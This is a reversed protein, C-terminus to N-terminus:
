RIPTPAASLVQSNNLMDSIGGRGAMPETINPVHIWGHRLLGCVSVEVAGRYLQPCLGADGHVVTAEYIQQCVVGVLPPSAARRACRLADSDVLRIAADVEGGFAGHDDPLLDGAHIVARMRLRRAARDDPGLSANYAV